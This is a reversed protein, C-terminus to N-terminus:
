IPYVHVSTAYNLVDEYDTTPRMVFEEGTDEKYMIKVAAPSVGFQQTLAVMLRQTTHYDGLSIRATEPRAAHYHAKIKSVSGTSAPANGGGGLGYGDGLGGGIM